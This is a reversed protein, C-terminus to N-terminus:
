VTTSIVLPPISYCPIQRASTTHFTTVTMKLKRRVMEMDTDMEMETEAEKVTDIDVETIMVSGTVM